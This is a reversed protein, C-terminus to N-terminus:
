NDLTDVGEDITNNKNNSEFPNSKETIASITDLYQKINLTKNKNITVRHNNTFDIKKDILSNIIAIFARQCCNADLIFPLQAKKRKLYKEDLSFNSELMNSLERFFEDLSDTCPGIGEYKVDFFQDNRKLINKKFEPLDPRFYLCPKGITAMEYVNSTFDTIIMKSSLFLPEFLEEDPILDVYKLGSFCNSFKEM